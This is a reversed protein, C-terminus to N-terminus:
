AKNGKVEFHWIRSMVLSPKRIIPRKFKTAMENYEKIQGRVKNRRITRLINSM